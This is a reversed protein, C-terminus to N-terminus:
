FPKIYDVVNNNRQYQAFSLKAKFIILPLDMDASTKMQATM